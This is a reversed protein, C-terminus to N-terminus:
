HFKWKKTYNTSKPAGIRSDNSIRISKWHNQLGSDVWFEVNYSIESFEAFELSNGSMEM